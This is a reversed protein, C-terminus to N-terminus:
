SEFSSPQHLFSFNEKHLILSTIIHFFADRNLTLSRWENEKKSVDYFLSIALGNKVNSMLIHKTNSFVNIVNLWWNSIWM